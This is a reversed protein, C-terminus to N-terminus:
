VVEFFRENKEMIQLPIEFLDSLNESTLINNKDGFKFIQGNKLLLVKKICAPLESLYHTTYILLKNTAIKDIKKLFFERTPIDLGQCPEDLVLIEPNLVLSRALLVKRKEGDSLTEFDTNLTIKSNETFGFKSLENKAKEQMQLSPNEPLGFCGFFGTLVVELISNETEKTLNNLDKLDQKSRIDADKTELFNRLYSVKQKFELAQNTSVFGIKKRLESLKIKGIKSKLIEIKSGYNAVLDAALVRSLFSKGAGNAGIIALHDNKDLEFNIDKLITKGKRTLNLNKVKIM